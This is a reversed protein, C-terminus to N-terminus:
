IIAFSYIANEAELDMNKDLKYRLSYKLDKNLLFLEKDSNSIQRISPEEYFTV